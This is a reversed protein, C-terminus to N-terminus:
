GAGVDLELGRAMFTLLAPWSDFVLYRTLAQLDHFFTQRTVLERRVRRYLEDCLELATHCLFALLNFLVLILALYHHGHGFNHELHYGYHKLVNNGENENKWRTRGATVFPRLRAESLLHDTAWANHYRQTGTAAETITVECWNVYTVPTESRLPVRNVYRYHWVEMGHPTWGRETVETVAGLKTLLAIEEYLTTHSEPKCTFAFHFHQATVLNCFPQHCYLDDGLLTVAGPAFHQANRKLWREAARLECDQKEQGDQPLIFEPELALVASQGPAVLLPTVVTHSYHRGDSLECETCQECHIQTSSFYQTGDLTVLWPSLASQYGKLYGGLRLSGFITWFPPGLHSPAIPDLLNRIQPDSPARELGFLSQANRRGKARQRDRRYALFSPAQVYFVAFAALAADAIAYQWNRGTRADPLHTMSAIVISRLRDFSLTPAM